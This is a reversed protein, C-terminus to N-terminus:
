VVGAQELQIQFRGIYINQKVTHQVFINKNGDQTARWTSAVARDFFSNNYYSRPLLRLRRRTGDQGPPFDRCIRLYQLREIEHVSRTTQVYGSAVELYPRWDSVLIM